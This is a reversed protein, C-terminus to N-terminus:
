SEVVCGARVYRAAKWAERAERKTWFRKAHDLRSSYAWGGEWWGYRGHIVWGGIAPGHDLSPRYEISVRM